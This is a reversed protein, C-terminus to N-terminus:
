EINGRPKASQQAALAALRAAIGSVSPVEDNGAADGRDVKKDLVVAAVVPAAAIPSASLKKPATAASASDGGGQAVPAASALRPEPKGVPKSALVQRPAPAAKAALKSASYGGGTHCNPSASAQGTMGAVAVIAAVLGLSVSKSSM